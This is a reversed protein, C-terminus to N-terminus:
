QQLASFVQSALDSAAATPNARVHAEIEKIKIFLGDLAKSAVFEDLDFNDLGLQNQVMDAAMGFIGGTEEGKDLASDLNRLADAAGVDQTAQNVLPKFKDFLDDRSSDELYKTAADDTGAVINRVDDLSLVSLAHLFIETSIAVAKEAARNLALSLENAKENQGAAELVSQLRLVADPLPIKVKEDGFFGDASALREVAEEIGKKLTELIVQTLDGDSFSEIAAKLDDNKPFNTSVDEVGEAAKKKLKSLWTM